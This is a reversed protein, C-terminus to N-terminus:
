PQEQITFRGIKNPPATPKTGEPTHVQTTKIRKALDMYSQISSSLAAPNTKIGGLGLEFEHMAGQGRFGHLAPQLAAYSKLDTAFKQIDPDQVGALQELTNVRGALPGLKQQIKPLEALLAQGQALSTDASLVRGQNAAPAPKVFTKGALDRRPMYTTVPNGSDDVTNVGTPVDLVRSTLANAMIGARTIGGQTSESTRRNSEFQQLAAKPYTGKPIGLVEAMDDGVEVNQLKEKESNAEGLRKEKGAETEGVIDKRTQLAKDQRANQENNSYIVKSMQPNMAYSIMQQTDEPSAGLAKAVQVISAIRSATPDTQLYQKLNPAGGLSPIARLKALVDDPNMGPQTPPPTVPAPTGYGVSQLPANPQPQPNITPNTAGSPQALPGAQGQGDVDAAPPRKRFPSPSGSGGGPGTRNLYGQPASALPAGYIAAGPDSGTNGMQQLGNVNVGAYPNGAGSLAKKMLISQLLGGLQNGGQSAMSGPQGMGGAAAQSQQAPAMAAFLQQLPNQPAQMGGSIDAAPPTRRNMFGAPPAGSPGNVPPPLGAVGAPTGGSPIPPAGAAAGGPTGQANFPNQVMNMMNQAEPHAKLSNLGKINGDGDLLHALANARVVPDQSKLMEQTVLSQFQQDRVKQQYQQQIMQQLSQGVGGMAGIATWPGPNVGTFGPTTNSYSTLPAFNSKPYSVTTM